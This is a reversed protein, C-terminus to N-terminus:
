AIARRAHYFRLARENHCTRCMRWRGNARIYLNGGALLHGRICHTKTAQGNRERGKAAMDRMNDAQTGLFLHRPNCCPPNDCRHLVLLGEPIPGFTLEWVMRHATVKRRSGDTRSGVLFRGYGGQNVFALWLWCANPGGSRDVKAWFRQEINRRM